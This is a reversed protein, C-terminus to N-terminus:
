GRRLKTLVRRLIGPATPVHENGEAPVPSIPPAGHLPMAAPPLMPEAASPEGPPTFILRREIDDCSSCMFTHHEFGAVAMTDDPVAKMLNMEAGCAMCRMVCESATPPRAGPITLRM